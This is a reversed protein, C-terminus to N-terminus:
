VIGSRKAISIKRNKEYIKSNITFKTSKKHIKVLFKSFYKNSHRKNLRGFCSLANQLFFENKGQLRENKGADFSIKRFESAFIENYSVFLFKTIYKNM